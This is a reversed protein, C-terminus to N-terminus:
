KPTLKKQELRKKMQQKMENMSDIKKKTESMYNDIRKNPKKNKQTFIDTIKGDIGFVKIGVTRDLESPNTTKATMVHIPM